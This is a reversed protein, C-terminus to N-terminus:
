LIHARNYAVGGEKLEGESIDINCVNSYSNPGNQRIRGFSYDKRIYKEIQELTSLSDVLRGFILM